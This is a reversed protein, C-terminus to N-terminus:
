VQSTTVKQTWKIAFRQSIQYKNGEKRRLNYLKQKEDQAKVLQRTAEM